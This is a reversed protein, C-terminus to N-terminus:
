YAGVWPYTRDKRLTAFYGYMDIGTNGALYAQRDEDFRIDLSYNIGIIDEVKDKRAFIVPYKVTGDPMGEPLAGPGNASLTSTQAMILESNGRTLGIRTLFLARAGCQTIEGLTEYPDPVYQLAGSSFVLDIKEFSEKARHLSDFFELQGDELGKAVEAMKSTEVVHWRFRVRDGMFARAIFYHVGCAGGFDIVNLERDTVALSLGVLTRLSSLDFVRPEQSALIDRYIRTKEYVTSVLQNEKYGGNCDSLAESYSSYFQEVTPNQQTKRFFSLLIPPVFEKM